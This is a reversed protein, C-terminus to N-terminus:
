EMWSLCGETECRGWVHGNYGSHSMHLNGKCVPCEVVGQWNTGAHKEKIDGILPITLMMRAMATEMERDQQLLEAETFPEYKGCIGQPGTEQLVKLAHGDSWRRCPERYASGPEDPQPTVSKYCVGANCTKNHFSGNFHRCTQQERKLSM